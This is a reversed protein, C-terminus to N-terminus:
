PYCYPALETQSLSSLEDRTTSDITLLLLTSAQRTLSTSQRILLVRLHPYLEPTLLKPLQYSRITTNSYCVSCVSLCALCVSLCFLCVSLPPPCARLCGYNRTPLCARLCRHRSLCVSLCLQLPCVSLCVSVVSRL